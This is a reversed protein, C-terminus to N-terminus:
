GNSAPLLGADTGAQIETADLLGDGNTDLTTFQEETMDTMVAQLEPFSYMGDGDVDIAADQAFAPGALALVAAPVAFLAIRTMLSKEQYFPV